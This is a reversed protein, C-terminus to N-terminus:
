SLDDIIEALEANYEYIGEGPAALIIEETFTGSGPALEGRTVVQSLLPELPHSFNNQADVPQDSEFAILFRDITQFIEDDKYSGWWRVHLVPTNFEDAFDDAMAVGAYEQLGAELEYLTSWEDHGIYFVDDISTAVMPKQEFKLIQGPLPDAVAMSSVLFTSVFVVISIKLLKSM